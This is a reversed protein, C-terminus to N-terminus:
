AEGLAVAMPASPSPLMGLDAQAAKNGETALDFFLEFAEEILGEERCLAARGLRISEDLMKHARQREAEPNPMM